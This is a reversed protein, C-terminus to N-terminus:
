KGRRRSKNCRKRASRSDNHACLAHDDLMRDNQSSVWLYAKHEDEVELLEHVDPEREYALRDTGRPHNLVDARQADTLDAFRVRTGIETSPAVTPKWNYGHLYSDQKTQHGARRRGYMGTPFVDLGAHWIKEYLRYLASDKFRDLVVNKENTYDMDLAMRMLAEGWQEPTCYARYQFDSPKTLEVTETLDPLYLDRLRELDLARRTRVQVIRPDGAVRHKEPILSPVYFGCPAGLIM